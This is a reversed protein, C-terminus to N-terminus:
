WQHGANLVCESGDELEWTGDENWQFWGVATIKKGGSVFFGSYVM